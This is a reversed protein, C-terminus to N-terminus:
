IQYMKRRSTRRHVQCIDQLTTSRLAKGVSACVGHMVQQIAGGIDSTQSKTMHDCGIPGEVATIIDLITVESPTKSLIFGGQRGRVSRVLDARKLVLMLQDLYPGPIHQRTAIRSAQMPKESQALALEVLAYLAYRVKNSFNM